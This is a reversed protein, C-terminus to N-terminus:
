YNVIRNVFMADDAEINSNQLPKDIHRSNLLDGIVAVSDVALTACVLFPTEDVFELKDDAAWANLSVKHKMESSADVSWGM